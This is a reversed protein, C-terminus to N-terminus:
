SRQLRDRLAVLADIEGIHGFSGQLTSGIIQYPTLEHDPARRLEDDLLGIRQILRTTSQSLYTSLADGPLAPVMRMEQPTYGTLTGLGLYGIGDPEYGTLDRWGETHWLDDKAARGTFARTALVDLWRAVHWVTVGASNSHPHPQWTLDEPSMLRLRAAMEQELDRCWEVMVAAVDLPAVPRHPTLRPEITEVYTM